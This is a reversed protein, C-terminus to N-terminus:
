AAAESVVREITLSRHGWEPGGRGATVKNWGPGSGCDCGPRECIPEDYLYFVGGPYNVEVAAVEQGILGELRAWYSPFRQDDAVIVRVRRAPTPEYNWYTAAESM